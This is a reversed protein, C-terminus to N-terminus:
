ISATMVVITLRPLTRLGQSIHPLASTQISLYTDGPKSLNM